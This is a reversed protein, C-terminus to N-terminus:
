IVLARLAKAVRPNTPDKIALASLIRLADHPRKAKVFRRALSLAAVEAFSRAGLAQTIDARLVEARRHDRRAQPRWPTDIVLPPASNNEAVRVIGEM